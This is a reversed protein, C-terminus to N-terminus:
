KSKEALRKDASIIIKVTKIIDSPDNKANELLNDFPEFLSTYFKKEFKDVEEFKKLLAKVHEDKNDKKEGAKKFLTERLENM